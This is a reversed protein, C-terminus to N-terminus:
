RHRIEITKDPRDEWNISKYFQSCMGEGYGTYTTLGTVKGNTFWVIYYKDSSIGTSCYQWAESNDQFQRNGPTNLIALVEKKSMGPEILVSKRSLGSTGCSLLATILCVMLLLKKMMKYDILKIKLFKRM